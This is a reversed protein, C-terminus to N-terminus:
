GKLVFIVDQEWHPTSHTAFAFNQLLQPQSIDCCLGLFAVAVDDAFLVGEVEPLVSVWIFELRERSDKAKTSITRDCLYQMM